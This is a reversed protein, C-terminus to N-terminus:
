FEIRRMVFRPLRRIIRMVWDAEVQMLFGAGNYIQIYTEVDANQADAYVVAEPMHTSLGPIM